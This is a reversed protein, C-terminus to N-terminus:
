LFLVNKVRIGMHKKLGIIGIIGVRIAKVIVCWDVTASGIDLV